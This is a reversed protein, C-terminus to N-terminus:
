EGKIIFGEDFLKAARKSISKPVAVKGLRVEVFRRVIEDPDLLAMTPNPAIQAAFLRTTPDQSAFLTSALKQKDIGLDVFTKMLVKPSLHLDYWDEEPDLLRAFLNDKPVGELVIPFSCKSMNFPGTTFAFLKQNVCAGVVEQVIDELEYVHEFALLAQETIEEDQQRREDQFKRTARSEIKTKKMLAKYKEPFANKLHESLEVPARRSCMEKITEAWHVQVTMGKKKLKKEIKQRLQHAGYYYNRRVIFCTVHKANVFSRVTIKKGEVDYTKYPMKRYLEPLVERTILSLRIEKLRENNM